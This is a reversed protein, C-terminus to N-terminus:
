LNYDNIFIFNVFIILCNKAIRWSQHYISFITDISVLIHLYRVMGLYSYIM